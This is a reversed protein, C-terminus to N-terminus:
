VMSRLDIRPSPPFSVHGCYLLFSPCCLRECEQCEQCLSGHLQPLMAHLTLHPLRLFLASHPSKRSQSVTMNNKNDFKVYRWVRVSVNQGYYIKILALGSRERKPPRSTPVLPSRWCSVGICADMFDASWRPLVFDFSSPNKNWPSEWQDWFFESGSKKEKRGIAWMKPFSFFFLM